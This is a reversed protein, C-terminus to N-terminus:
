FRLCVTILYYVVDPMFHSGIKEKFHLFERM